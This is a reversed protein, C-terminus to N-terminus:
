DEFEIKLSMAIYSIRAAKQEENTYRYWCSDFPDDACTCDELYDSHDMVAKYAVEAIKDYDVM